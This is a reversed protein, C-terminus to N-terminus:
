KTTTELRLERKKKLFFVLGMAFGCHKWVGTIGYRISLYKNEAILVHLEQITWWTNGMFKLQFTYYLLWLLWKRSSAVFINPSFSKRSKPDNLANRNGKLDCNEWCCCFFFGSKLILLSFMNILEFQVCVCLRWGLAHMIIKYYYCFM